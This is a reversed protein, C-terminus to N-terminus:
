AEDLTDEVLRRLQELQSEMTGDLIGYDTELRCGGRSLSREDELEIERGGNVATLLDMSETLIPVDLPNCKLIFRKGNRAKELLRRAIDVVIGNESDVQHNIIQETMALAMAYITESSEDYFRQCEGRMEEMLGQAQRIAAQFEERGQQRGTKEGQALGKQRAEEQLQQAQATAQSIIQGAQQQAQALLADAEAQVGQLVSMDRLGGQRREGKTEQGSQELVFAEANVKVKESLAAFPNLIYEKDEETRFSKIVRSM